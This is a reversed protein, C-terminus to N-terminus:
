PVNYVYTCSFHLTRVWLQIKDFVEWSAQGYIVGGSLANSWPAVPQKGANGVGWWLSLFLGSITRELRSKKVIKTTM